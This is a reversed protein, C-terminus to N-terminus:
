WLGFFLPELEKCVMEDIKLFTERFEKLMKAYTLGGRKGSVKDTYSDMNTVSGAKQRAIATDESVSDTDARQEGITRSDQEAMQKAVSGSDTIKRAETLYTNDAVSDNDATIGNIGGQPTDSFLNWQTNSTTDNESVNRSGSDSTNKTSNYTGSRDKDESINESEATSGSAQGMHLVTYDVDYLPNFELLASLYLQNYYPMILNLKDWLKLQWLGVTEFAIERVYFHRLIMKEFVLRYQEDYIPFDFNFILPASTTLINDVNGLGKSEKLGAKSECIYRVETTYKSM